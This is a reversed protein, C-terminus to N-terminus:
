RLYRNIVHRDHPGLEVCVYYVFSLVVVLNLRVLQKAWRMRVYSCAARDGHPKTENLRGVAGFAVSLIRGHLGVEHTPESTDVSSRLQTNLRGCTLCTM